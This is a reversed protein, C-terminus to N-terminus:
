DHSSTPSLGMWHPHRAEIWCLIRDSGRRIAPVDEALLLLGLPLMWLGFVPLLAFLSAVVLLIGAPVRVWRAAPRRLWRVPPQLQSPLRGILLEIRRERNDRDKQGDDFAQDEM